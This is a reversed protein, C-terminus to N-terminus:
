RQKKIEALVKGISQFEEYTYKNSRMRNCETCCVVCNDKSYGINHDKRDLFYARSIYKGKELSYERWPIETECYTCNPIKTFELYEEYSLAVETGRHDRKIGNYVSEFPRLQHSCSQCKGASRSLDASRVRVKEKCEPGACNFVYVSRCGGSKRTQRIVELAHEKNLLAPEQLM